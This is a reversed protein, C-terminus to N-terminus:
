ENNKVPVDMNPAIILAKMLTRRKEFFMYGSTCGLAHLKKSAKSCISSLHQDFSYKSGIIIGLSTKNTSKTFSVDGM